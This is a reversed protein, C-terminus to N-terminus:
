WLRSDYREVRFLRKQQYLTTLCFGFWGVVQVFDTCKRQNLFIIEDKYPMGPRANRGLLVRSLYMHGITHPMGDPMSFVYQLTKV